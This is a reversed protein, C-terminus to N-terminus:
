GQLRPRRRRPGTGSPANTPLAPPAPAYFSVGRVNEDIKVFLEGDAFVKLASLGGFDKHTSTLELGGRFALSEFRTRTPDRPDFAPISKAAIEIRVPPEPQRLSTQALASNALLGIAAPQDHGRRFHQM